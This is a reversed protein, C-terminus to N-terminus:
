EFRTRDTDVFDMTDRLCVVWFAVSDWQVLDSLERVGGRLLLGRTSLRSPFKGGLSRIRVRGRHWATTGEQQRAKELLTM